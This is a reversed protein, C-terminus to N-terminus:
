LFDTLGRVGFFGSGYPVQLSTGWESYVRRFSIQFKEVLAPVYNISSLPIFDACINEVIRSDKNRLYLYAKFIHIELLIFQKSRGVKHISIGTSYQKDFLIKLLLVGQKSYTLLGGPSKISKKHFWRVLIQQLYM